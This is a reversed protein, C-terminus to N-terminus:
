PFSHTLHVLIRPRSAFFFFLGVLRKLLGKAGAAALDNACVYIFLNVIFLYNLGPWVLGGQLNPGKCSGTFKDM